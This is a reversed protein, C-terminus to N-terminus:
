HADSTETERYFNWSEEKEKCKKLLNQLEIKWGGCRTSNSLKKIESRVYHSIEPFAPHTAMHSLFRDLISTLRHMEMCALLITSAERDKKLITTSEEISEIAEKMPDVPVSSEAKEQKFKRFYQIDLSKMMDVLPDGIPSFTQTGVALDNIISYCYLTFSNWISSKSSLSIACNLVGFLPFALPRLNEIRSIARTWLDCAKLFKFNKFDKKLKGASSKLHKNKKKSKKLQSVMVSAGLQRLSQFGVRYTVHPILAMIEVISNEAFVLSNMRSQNAKLDPSCFVLGEYGRKVIMELIEHKRLLLDDGSLSRGSQKNKKQFNDFKVRLHSDNLALFVLNRLFVFCWLKVSEDSPFCLAKYVEDLMEEIRKGHPLLWKLISPHALNMLVTQLVEPEKELAPLLKSFVVWLFSTLDRFGVPDGASILNGFDDGIKFNGSSIELLSGPSSKEKKNHMKTTSARKGKKLSPNNKEYLLRDKEEPSLKDIIAGIVKTTEIIVESSPVDFNGDIKGVKKPKGIKKKKKAITTYDSAAKFFAVLLLRFERRSNWANDLITQFTVIEKEEDEEVDSEDIGDLDLLDNEEIFSFLQPDQLKLSEKFKGM